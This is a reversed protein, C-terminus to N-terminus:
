FVKFFCNDVDALSSTNELQMATKCGFINTDESKEEVGCERLKATVRKRLEIDGRERLIEIM